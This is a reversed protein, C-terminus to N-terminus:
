CMAHKHGTYEIITVSVFLKRLTCKCPAFAFAFAFLKKSRTSGSLLACQYKSVANTLPTGKANM